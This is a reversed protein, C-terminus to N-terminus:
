LINVVKVCKHLMEGGITLDMEWGTEIMKERIGLDDIEVYLCNKFDHGPMNLTKFTLEDVIAMSATACRRVYKDLEEQSAIDSVSEIDVITRGRSVTSFMDNPNDNVYSSVMYESDTNEVFRVFKNPIDFRNTSVSSKPLIISKKDAKYYMDIPQSEPFIYPKGVPIGYENFHLPYYNLSMLIDNIISLKSTGPPWESANTRKRTSTELTYMQYLESLMEQLEITYFNQESKVVRTETKDDLAVKGLDYGIISVEKEPGDSFFSPSIIFKGLPYKLMEGDIKVCLWPVIREDILNIDLIENKMATGSFTRMISSTADYSIKGSCNSLEGLYRGANDLVAYEYHIERKSSLLEQVVREHTYKGQTLNM